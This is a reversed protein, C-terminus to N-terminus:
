SVLLSFFGRACLVVLLSYLAVDYDSEKFSFNTIPVESFCDVFAINYTSPSAVGYVSLVVILTGM